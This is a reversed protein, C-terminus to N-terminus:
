LQEKPRVLGAKKAIQQVTAQGLELTALYIKAEKESLGFKELVRELM